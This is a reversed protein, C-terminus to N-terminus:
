PLVDVGHDRVFIQFDRIDDQRVLWMLFREVGMGFGATRMPAREKMAVYWAYQRPSVGHLELASLVEAGTRHREGAGIVEGPGFLLDACLARGSQQDTAQYFPVSRSDWHTIWLFEGRQRMLEREGALRLTRWGSEPDTAVYRDDHDLLEAAEDFTLREFVSKRRLLEDLHGLNGDNFKELLDRHQALLDRVLHRLYEEVVTIVDDLGGPIEAESHFFQGLHTADSKEGRFSPMIYYSGNPSLRCLYELGFQMSDALYTDVGFMSVSVPSSDSGLGMPSSISGTTIPLHGNSVGRGSWFQATSVTLCSQLAVLGAYWESDMAKLYHSDPEMWTQPPVMYSANAM